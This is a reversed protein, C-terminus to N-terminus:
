RGLSLSLAAVSGGGQPPTSPTPSAEPVITAPPPAPESTAPPAVAEPGVTEPAVAEPPVTEPAVEDPPATEPAVTEPAVTEPAVEEPAVEEPATPMVEPTPTLEPPALVPGPEPLPESSGGEREDLVVFGDEDVLVGSPPIYAGGATNLGLRMGLSDNYVDVARQYQKRNKGFLIGATIGFAVTAIGAGFLLGGTGNLEKLDVGERASAATGALTLIGSAVTLATFLRSSRMRRVPLAAASTADSRLVADLSQWSRKTAQLDNGKTYRMGQPQDHKVIANDEYLQERAGRDSVVELQAFDTPPLQPTLGM